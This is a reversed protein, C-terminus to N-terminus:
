FLESASRTGYWAVLLKWSQGRPPAVDAPPRMAINETSKIQLFAGTLDLMLFCLKANSALISLFFRLAMMGPTAAFRTEIWKRKFQRCVLRARVDGNDRVAIIWMGGVVEGEHDKEDIIVYGEFEHISKMEELTLTKPFRCSFARSFYVCVCMKSKYVDGCGHYLCLVRIGDEPAFM